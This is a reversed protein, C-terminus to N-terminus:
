KTLSIKVISIVLVLIPAHFVDDQFLAEFRRFFSPVPFVFKDALKFGDVM